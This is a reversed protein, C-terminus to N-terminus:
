PTGTMAPDTPPDDRAVILFRMSLSSLGLSLFFFMGVYSFLVLMRANTLSQRTWVKDEEFNNEKLLVRPLTRDDKPDLLESGVVRRIQVEREGELKVDVVVYLSYSYLYLACLLLSGFLAGCGIWMDQRARRKLEAASSRFPSLYAYGIILAIVSFVVAVIASSGDPWPPELSPIWLAVPGSVAVVCAGGWLSLVFDFFRKM